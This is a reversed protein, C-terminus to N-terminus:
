AGRLIALRGSMNGMLRCRQIIKAFETPDMKTPYRALLRKELDPFSTCDAIDEKLVAHLDAALAAAGLRVAKQALTTPYDRPTKGKARLAATAGSDVMKMIATFTPDTPASARIKGTGTRRQLKAKFRDLPITSMGGFSRDGDNRHALHAEKASAADPFGIMTKDEDHVKFDPARLQHVVHVDPADETPGIYCDVEEGDSGMVGEIFGYDHLMHTAGTENGEADTWHRTSGRANEVAIPLGAFQYRNVVTDAAGLAAKGPKKTPAGPAGDNAPPTGASGGAPPAGGDGGGNDNGPGQNQNAAKAFAEAQKQAAEAKVAERAAQEEESILDIGAEELLARDDIPANALHLSQLADGWMKLATAEETNDEPPGVQYLPRPALEPDGFNFKAWPMLVQSRFAEAINADEKAKDLRVLNHISAGGDGLGGGAAETTLNQGLMLVAIDTDLIEKFKVFADWTRGKAEVYEVDYKNGDEGQPLLITPEAGRNAVSQLFQDDVKSDGGLGPTIAKVLALGHIECFRAFDRYTWQRMVFKQALSRIMGRLWSYQYGSPNWVFWKGDGMPSEDIRPLDIEGKMTLLKYRYAGWDWRVFQPHWFKLRPWWMGDVSTWVIEAVAFNLLYGFRLIESIVGPPFIHDWRGTSSEVRGLMKAIRASKARDDAPRILLDSGILAGARTRIVADIRDDRGMADAFLAGQQLYGWEVQQLTALVSAVSDYGSFSQIPISSYTQRDPREV